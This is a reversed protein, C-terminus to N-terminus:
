GAKCVPIPAFTYGQRQWRPLMDQVALVTDEHTDHLLIVAGPRTISRLRQRTWSRSHPAWDEIHATWLVPQFGVGIAAKAVRRDILGYPPRMCGGMAPGVVRRTSLLERKIRRTPVQTLREHHFTHSGIAHGHRHMRRITARRSDAWGTVFFTAIVRHQRLAKLLQGTQPSPGDDFTLYLIKHRTRPGIAARYWGPPNPLGKGMQAPGSGKNWQVPPVPDAAVPSSAVAIAAGIVAELWVVGPDCSRDSSSAAMQSGRPRSAEFAHCDM